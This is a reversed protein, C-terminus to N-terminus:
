FSQRSEKLCYIYGAANAVYVYEDAANSLLHQLYETPYRGVVEGTKEMLAWIERRPGLIYVFEKGKFLFREALPIKWRMSGNRKSGLAAGTKAERHQPNIEFAHLAGEETRVYVTQDKAIAASKIEGGCEYKWILNGGDADLAYFANDTGGVFLFRTTATAKKKGGKEDKGAAPAGMAPAAMAPPAAMADPKKEDGGAPKNADAPAGAGGPVLEDKFTYVVPDARLSRETAYTWTLAGDTVRYCYVKGDHSVFFLSPDSFVPANMVQNERSTIDAKYFTVEQGRKTVDLVWVRALDAGPVFVYNRVAYPKASPVFTLRATWNLGGSLRDLCYLVQHSIFYVNDGFTAVRLRERLENRKKQLAQTEKGVGLEKLKDDIQRNVSRLDTELQRIEEPVGAAVTPPWDLPTLTDIKFMWQTRGNFRDMAIVAHDPTEVFLQDGALTLRSIARNNFKYEWEVHKFPLRRVEDAIVSEGPDGTDTVFAGDTFEAQGLSGGCAALTLLLAALPSTRV